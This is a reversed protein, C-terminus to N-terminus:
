NLACPMTLTGMCCAGCDLSCAYMHCLPHHRPPPASSQTHALCCHHPLGGESRVLPWSALMTRVPIRVSHMLIPQGQRGQGSGPNAWSCPQWIWIQPAWAM